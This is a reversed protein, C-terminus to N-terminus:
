QELEAMRAKIEGTKAILDECKDSGKSKKKRDGIEKNIKGFEFRATEMSYNAKRWQEDLEIVASVLDEGEAFRKKESDRVKDPDGGKEKRLLNIDIPM